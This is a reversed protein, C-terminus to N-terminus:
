PKTMPQYIFPFFALCLNSKKCISRVIRGPYIIDSRVIELSKKALCLLGDGPGSCSYTVLKFNKGLPSFNKLDETSGAVKTETFAVFDTKNLVSRLTVYKVDRSFTALHSKKTLSLGCINHTAFSIDNQSM